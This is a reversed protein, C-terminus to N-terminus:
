ATAAVPEKGNGEKDATAAELAAAIGGRRPLKAILKRDGFVNDLRSTTPWFKAARTWPAPFAAVERTYPRDWKDALVVCPAHPAHVLPNNDRPLRGAEVDAVEHRIAIMADCYRDLEAKTESETPEVMLTGPVPWSMTPAHFGYDILRKAIDEAEVGATEKLPRVDLIFEHAVTGNKGTYLIPYHPALRAAMYNAKLIALRSADTLGKSGMMAIYAYSIPLILSSGFPAAAMAGFPAAKVGKVAPSAKPLAGTPIVPHSPMFPALHAKVGIPGMGPGGGGHPICFTKHLNLHCVDAGILGPATLGVQANMNAGDMYVQGGHSHVVRCVEDVGEEYVGYTSPYTIMLAALNKGAKAAKEVLEAMNVNGKSDTSVTVIKMGAMVASAPNTGHASVPIICVDRHPEGNARHFARIAMLGAYEGSAGSNPQLSVADFGTITALQASLDEFMEAYGQAQEVPVFPHLNCLEPWTVPMMESTANLKMTCSGLPIMSHALSLDKNELRKLYRLMEHEAGYANFVEQAMFADPTRTGLPGLSSSATAALQEATRPADKGGNLAKLLLDVDALTSTEDFSVTVCTPSLPRINAGLALAAAVAQESSPVTVSVTDFFHARPVANAGLVGRAGEAFVAALGHVRDAIATLGKPGHYAGYLAAINALLAQATCINSTAKDRRIHQERTQMAMRLAPKGQADVSVGIIRGPMMRKYDESCALFAAHPGGYGMPVGFRQASGVVIDAGFSSPPALKTLSLLDTAVVVKLGAAHAGAVLERYDDVGGDTAPYQLLLGCVDKGFRAQLAARDTEDVVEARLGLGEARTQCVAVTQPHCRSSVLFVPKKGRAVASCMTMAEAAATAEDLLSANSIQMGTLETIMTQFTLLCELRGQAIEAQYPTYQTYWGPNELVNRQIVPPLHTGHYGMGLFCKVGHRNKAAMARFKDLFVSETQGEHYQPALPMGDHRRISTPVTADILADLSPFGSAAVM